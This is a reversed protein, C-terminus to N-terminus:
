KTHATVRGHINVVYPVLFSLLTSVWRNANMEGNILAAGHNILFLVLGVVLAVKMGSAAYRKDFLSNILIRIM